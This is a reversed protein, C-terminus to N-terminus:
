PRVWDKVDRGKLLVRAQLKRLAGDLADFQGSAKPDPKAGSFERAQVSRSWQLVSANLDAYGHHVLNVPLSLFGEALLSKALDAIEKAPVPLALRPGYGSKHSQSQAEAVSGSIHLVVGDPDGPGPASLQPASYTLTLAEPALVGSALKTLGDELSSIPLGSAADNRCRDMVANLLGLFQRDQAGRNLQWVTKGLDGIVLTLARQVQPGEKPRPKAAHSGGFTDPMTEFGAEDLIRLEDLLLAKSATFQRLNCWFGVGRGYLVVTERGEKKFLDGEIRVAELPLKGDLTAHIRNKLELNRLDRPSPTPTAVPATPGPTQPAQGLLPAALALTVALSLISRTM